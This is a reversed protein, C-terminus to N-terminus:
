PKQFGLFSGHHIRRYYVFVWNITMTLNLITWNAYILLSFAILISLFQFVFRCLTDSVKLEIYWNQISHVHFLTWNPETIDQCALPILRKRQITRWPLKWNHIKKIFNCLEKKLHPAAELDRASPRADPKHISHILTSNEILLDKCQHSCYKIKICIREFRKWAYKIGIM